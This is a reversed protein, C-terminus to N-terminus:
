GDVGRKQRLLPRVAVHVDPRHQDELARCRRIVVEQVVDPRPQVEYRAVPVLERERRKLGAPRDPDVVAVEVELVVHAVRRQRLRARLLLQAREGRADVRLPQVAGLRQPLRPEDLAELAPAERQDGLGVVRQDVPDAADVQHGHEEVRRRDRLDGRVLALRPPRRVLRARQLQGRAAHLPEHPQRELQGAVRERRRGMRGLRQVGDLLRELPDALDRPRAQVRRGLRRQVHRDARVPPQREHAVVQGIELEDLVREAPGDVVDHQGDHRAPQPGPQAVAAHAGFPQLQARQDRHGHARLSWCWSSPLRM